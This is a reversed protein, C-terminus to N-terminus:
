VTHKLQYQRYNIYCFHYEEIRKLSEEKLLTDPQSAPQFSSGGVRACRVKM